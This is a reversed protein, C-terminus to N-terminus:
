SAKEDLIEILNEEAMKKLFSAVEKRCTAEDIDYEEIINEQIDQFTVPNQITSWIFAGVANIGYYKENKLSLIVAEGNLDSYLHEKDAIFCCNALIIEDFSRTKVM